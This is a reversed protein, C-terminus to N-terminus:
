KTQLNHTLDLLKSISIHHRSISINNRSMTIQCSKAFNAFSVDSISKSFELDNFQFNSFELNVVKCVLDRSMVLNVSHARTM